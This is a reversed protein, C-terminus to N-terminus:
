DASFYSGGRRVSSSRSGSPIGRKHSKLAANAPGNMKRAGRRYPSPHWFLSPSLKATNLINFISLSLATLGYTHTHTHLNIRSPPLPTKQSVQVWWRGETGWAPRQLRAVTSSLQGSSWSYIPYNVRFISPALTVVLLLANCDKEVSLVQSEVIQGEFLSQPWRIAINTHKISWCDYSISAKYTVSLFCDTNKPLFIQIVFWILYECQYVIM